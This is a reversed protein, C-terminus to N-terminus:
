GHRQCSRTSSTATNGRASGAAARSSIKPESLKVYVLAGIAAVLVIVLWKNM